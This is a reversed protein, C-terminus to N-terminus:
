RASTASRAWAEVLAIREPPLPPLGLPMGLVPGPDGAVERHRAWLHEVLPVAGTPDPTLLDLRSSAAAETSLDLGAGAYGFGGTNGPGGDGGVPAPDAHCHRCVEHFVAANVEDWGVPRDVAVPAASAPRPAPAPPDVFLAAVVDARAAPDLGPDPMRTGPAVAAPGALWRDVQQPASREHVRGLDIALPDAAHCPACRAELLARGRSPDGTLAAPAPDVLGFVDALAQADAETIPLRPMEAPLGPRVDSPDLLLQVFWRRTVRESLGELSPTEVIRHLHRKWGSVRGPLYRYDLEGRLIQQHCGVCSREPPAAAFLPAAAHCRDCEF